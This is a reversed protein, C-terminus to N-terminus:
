FDNRIVDSIYIEENNKSNILNDEYYNLFKMFYESNKLDMFDVQHLLLFLKKRWYKLLRAKM